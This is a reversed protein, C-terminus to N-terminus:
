FDCATYKCCGTYKCRGTYFDCANYKDGATYNGCATHVFEQHSIAPPKGRSGPSCPDDELAISYSASSHRDL